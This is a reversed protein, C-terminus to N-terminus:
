QFKGVSACSSSSSSRRQAPIPSSAARRTAASRAFGFPLDASLVFLRAFTFYAAFTLVSAPHFRLRSARERSLRGRNALPKKVNRVSQDAATMHGAPKRPASPRQGQHLGVARPYRLSAAIWFATPRGVHGQIEKAESAIVIM